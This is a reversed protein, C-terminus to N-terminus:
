NIIRFSRQVCAFYNGACFINGGIPVVAAGPLFRHKFYGNLIHSFGKWIRALLGLLERCHYPQAGLTRGLSCFLTTIAREKILLGLIIRASSGKQSSRIIHNRNAAPVSRSSKNDKATSRGNEWPLVPLGAAALLTQGSRSCKGLYSILRSEAAASAITM